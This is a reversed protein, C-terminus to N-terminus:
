CPGIAVADSGDKMGDTERNPSAVSGCDLHVRGIVVPASVKGSAVLDNIIAGAKARDGM